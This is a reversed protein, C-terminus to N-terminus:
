ATEAGTSAVGPIECFDGTCVVGADGLPQLAIRPTDTM